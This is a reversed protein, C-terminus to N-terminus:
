NNEKRKKKLLFGCICIITIAIVITLIAVYFTNTNSYIIYFNNSLGAYSLTEGNEEALYILNAGLKQYEYTPAIEYWPEEGEAKRTYDDSAVVIAKADASLNNFDDILKKAKDSVLSGCIDNGRGGKLENAYRLVFSHAATMASNEDQTGMYVDYQVTYYTGVVVDREGNWQIKIQEIVDARIGNTLDYDCNFEDFYPVGWGGDSYDAIAFRITQGQFASLNIIHTRLTVTSLPNDAHMFHEGDTDFTQCRYEALIEKTTANLIQLSAAGAMKISVYHAGQNLTYPSSTFRYTAADGVVFGQEAHAGDLEANEEYWGRFFGNGDKNFPMYPYAPRYNGDSIARDFHYAQNEPNAGYSDDFFFGQYFDYLNDFNNSVNELTEGYMVEKLAGNLPFNLLIANKNLYKRNDNKVFEYMERAAVRVEELTQNVHLNGFNHFGYDNPADDYLQIYMDFGNVTDLTAYVDDPIKYYRYTMQNETFTDNWVDQTFWTEEGTKVHFILKVNKGDGRNNLAGGWQFHIYQTHQTWTITNLRVETNWEHTEGRFFDGRQSFTFGEDWFTANVDHFSGHELVYNTFSAPEMPIFTKAGAPLSTKTTNAIAPTVTEAKAVGVKNGGVNVLFGLAVVSAISVLSFSIVSKKM